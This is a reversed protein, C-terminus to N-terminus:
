RSPVSPVLIIRNIKEQATTPFFDATSGVEDVFMKAFDLKKRTFPRYATDRIAKADFVMEEGQRFWRKLNRSWKIKDYSVFNDIYTILLKHDKPPKAKRKWRELEANYDEAFQECREALRTADFDYVVSDRNTSVGLSYTRFITEGAAHRGVKAEKSGIPVFKRFEADNDNTLWDHRANPKLKIWKVGAISKAEDVFAYKEERRWPVPVAHHYITADRRQGAKGPLRIFVNISVGVQIGFVNHTTGSLTPHKRVNGGLDLVYILDFDRALHKRMGDFTNETLFSNNNVYCVVGKDGIRESAYRIAKVYPDWLKRQLTATGDAAYTRKVRADMEPYKRNKNNDNEDIQGANYPPNAIVVRIDKVARQRKVRESNAENFIEFDPQEKEMTEFTDVLCIGEFPEYQKTREYYSHEINMSAVYYPLLSVENCHLEEAYKQKLAAGSIHQMLNVIFNGTGTFPDFIHVGKADLSTDFHEALVHEVSAIMFQVLPQPTYVVGLVDAQKVAFGQFFREYVINLFKQKETFDQFTGAAKEIALYFPDLARLFDGRNFHRADLTAIVKEIDAAIVNRERFNEIDFIKRLIRETLLHQTLMEEVAAESLNPNLSTRCTTIFDAFATAYAPNEKRAKKLRVALAKGLEPVKDKFEVVASEWEAIAEPAFELFRGLIALLAAPEDLPTDAVRRDHQYLVARRPEWFLINATPYSLAIKGRIEKELDDKTDKAEWHGHHIQYLDMITGDPKIRRGKVRWSHEPVLKWGFPKAAAELLSAFASRVAEEHEVGLTKFAALSEYYDQVVKHSPRLTMTPMISSRKDCM